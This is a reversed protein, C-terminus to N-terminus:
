CKRDELQSAHTPAITSSCSWCLLMAQSGDWRQGQQATTAMTNPFASCEGDSQLRGLAFAQRWVEQVDDDDDDALLRDEAMTDLSSVVIPRDRPWWSPTVHAWCLIWPM